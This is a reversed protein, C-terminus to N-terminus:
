VCRQQGQLNLEEMVLKLPKVAQTILYINTAGKEVLEHSDRFALVNPHRM